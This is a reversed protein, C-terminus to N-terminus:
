SNSIRFGAAKRVQDGFTPPKPAQGGGAGGDARGAIRPPAAPTFLKVLEDADAELEEQTTGVLRVAQVKTLGKDLAVEYKLAKLEAEPNGAPTAPTAPDAKAKQLAKLDREHKRSSTKWTANETRLREIEAIAEEPTMEEDLSEIAVTTPIATKGDPGVTTVPEVFTPAAASAAAPSTTEVVAM